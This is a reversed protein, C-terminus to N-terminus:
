TLNLMLDELSPDNFNIQRDLLSSNLTALNIGETNPYIFLLHFSKINIAIDM